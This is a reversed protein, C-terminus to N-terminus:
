AIVVEGLGDMAYAVQALVDCDHAKVLRVVDSLGGVLGDFEILGAELRKPQIPARLQRREVASTALESATGCRTM